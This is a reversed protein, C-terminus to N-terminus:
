LLTDGQLSTDCQYRVPIVGTLITMMLFDIFLLHQLPHPSFPVRWWYPPPLHNSSMVLETFMFKLLGCSFSFSLSKPTSYDMPDCLTLCLLTVSCCCSHLVTHFNKSFSFISNGYSKAIGSRPMYGSFVIVQCSVCVGINM